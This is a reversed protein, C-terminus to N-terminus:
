LSSCENKIPGTKQHFYSSNLNQGTTVFFTFEKSRQVDFESCQIKLGVFHKARLEARTNNPNWGINTKTQRKQM